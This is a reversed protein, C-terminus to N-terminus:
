PQDSVVVYFNVDPGDSEFSSSPFVTPISSAFPLEIYKMTRNAAGNTYILGDVDFVACFWVIGASLLHPVTGIENVGISFSTAPTRELATGPQGGQDRYLGLKVKSM